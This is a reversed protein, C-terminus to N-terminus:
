RRERRLSRIRKRGLAEGDIDTPDDGSVNLAMQAQRVHLDGPHFDIGVAGVPAISEPHGTRNQFAFAQNRGAAQFGMLEAPHEGQGEFIVHTHNGGGTVPEIIHALQM